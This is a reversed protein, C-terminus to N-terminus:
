FYKPKYYHPMNMASPSCRLAYPRVTDKVSEVLQLKNELTKFVKFTQELGFNVQSKLYPRLDPLPHESTHKKQLHVDMYKWIFESLILVEGWGPGLITQVPLGWWCFQITSTPVQLKSV